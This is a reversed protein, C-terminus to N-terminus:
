PLDARLRSISLRVHKRLHEDEADVLRELMPLARPSGIRGLAAAVTIVLLNQKDQRPDVGELLKLLPDCADQVGMMGLTQVISVRVIYPADNMRDILMRAGNPCERLYEVALQGLLPNVGIVLRGMLQVIMDSDYDSLARAADLARRPTDHEVTDIWNEISPM